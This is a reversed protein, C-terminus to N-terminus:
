RKRLIFVLYSSLHRLPSRCLWDDLKRMAPRWRVPIRHVPFFGIGVYDVIEWGDGLLTKMEKPSSGFAGHWNQARYNVLKRRQSSPLDVILLGDPRLYRQASQFIKKVKDADLHMLLHFSYGNAFSAAGFPPATADGVTLNKDPYKERAVDIMSASADLGHGAFDLLRGTGCGLDLNESFSAEPLWARLIKREQADLYQGYSNGFRDEDYDPALQDYYETVALQSHM